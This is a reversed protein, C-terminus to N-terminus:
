AMDIWCKSWIRKKEKNFNANIDSNLSIVEAKQRDMLIGVIFCILTIFGILVTLIVNPLFHKTGPSQMLEYVGPICSIVVTLIFLPKNITKINEVETRIDEVTKNGNKIKWQKEAKLLSLKKNYKIYPWSTGFIAGFMWLMWVTLAISMYHVFFIAIPIFAYLITIKKLDKKFLNCIETVEDDELFESPLRVGMLVNKKPKSNTKMVFYLIPLVPYLCITFIINLIM